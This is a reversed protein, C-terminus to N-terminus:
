QILLPILILEKNEKIEEMAERKGKDQHVEENRM